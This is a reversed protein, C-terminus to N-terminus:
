DDFILFFYRNSQLVLCVESGNNLDEWTRSERVDEVGELEMKIKNAGELIWLVQLLANPHWDKKNNLVDELFDSGMLAKPKKQSSQVSGTTAVPPRGHSFGPWNHSKTEKIWTREVESESPMKTTEPGVPWFCETKPKFKIPGDGPFKDVHCMNYTVRFINKGFSDEYAAMM